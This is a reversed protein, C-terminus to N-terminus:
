GGSGVGLREREPELSRWPRPGELSQMMWRM